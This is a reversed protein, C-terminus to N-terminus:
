QLYPVTQCLNIIKALHRRYDRIGCLFLFNKAADKNFLESGNALM